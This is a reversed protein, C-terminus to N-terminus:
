KDIGVGIEYPDPKAPNAKPGIWKKGNGAWPENYTDNGGGDVFIGFCNLYKRAGQDLPNAQGLVPRGHTVYTDDGAWDYFLGMGNANGGGLSLTPADYYDNGGRDNLFGITFDHGSGQSMNMTAVYRDNGGFDDLYAAGFHAGSGQVYWVAKYQDDGAGDLLMGVAYWYACGQAFLGASYTDNGKVDCLIGVGGAWSHGDEYDARKGFGTGQALSANHDKTQQTPNFLYSDEAVYSDNGEFDVLLGAGQTYGFGQSNALCYFSDAGASDSLIGIGFAAAGQAYTKARYVDDGSYDMVIGGGFVGCGQALNASEYRDDGAKDIIISVGMVGGGLGPLTTDPSLYKDNGALDVIISAPYVDMYGSIRYTDNGGGDIILLPPERYEFIEDGKTGIVILGHRTKVEVKYSPFTCLELSDATMRAAEAFDQMGAIVRNMDVDTAMKEVEDNYRQSDRVFYNFLKRRNGSKDIKELGKPLNFDKDDALAYILDIKKRLREFEPGTLITMRNTISPVPLSDQSKLYKDLAPSVLGRRVPCDIRRSSAQVLATINTVNTSCSALTLEGYKPFKFPNKHFMTFFSVRWKDGGWGAMEDQDFRVQERNMGVQSLASDFLSFDQAGAAAPFLMLCLGPLLILSLWLFKKM